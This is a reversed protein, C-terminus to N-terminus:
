SVTGRVFVSPVPALGALILGLAAPVMLFLISGLTRRVTATLLQREGRAAQESRVPFAANAASMPVTGLRLMMLTWALNLAAFRGDPLFSALRTTLFFGVQVAGR